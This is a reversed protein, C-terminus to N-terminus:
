SSRSKSPKRMPQPGSFSSIQNTPEDLFSASRWGRAERPFSLPSRLYNGVEEGLGRKKERERERDGERVRDRWRDRWSKQWRKEKRGRGEGKKIERGRKSEGGGQERSRIQEKQRMVKQTRRDSEGERRYKNWSETQRAM